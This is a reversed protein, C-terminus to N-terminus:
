QAFPNMGKQCSGVMQRCTNMCHAHFSDFPVLAGPVVFCRGAFGMRYMVSSSCAKDCICESQDGKGMCAREHAYAQIERCLVDNCNQPKGWWGEQLGHIGEHLITQGIRSNLLGTDSLCLTITNEGPTWFGRSTEGCDECTILPCAGGRQKCMQDYIQRVHPNNFAKCLMERNKPDATCSSDVKVNVPLECPLPPTCSTESLGQSDIYKLPSSKTYTYYSDSTIGIPDRRTWRGSDADYVRHRVHYLRRGQAEPVPDYEYGAYGRRNATQPASLTGWGFTGSGHLALADLVDDFDSVGDLNVDQRARDTFTGGGLGGVDTLDFDGDSDIDGSPIMFPVGYASYKVWQILSGTDTLLASVDARWNQVYYIREERLGDTADEWWNTSADRDRLIVADIYSSGGFGSLGANHHVFVEKPTADTGRFTAVQRWSDDYCFYFWPDAGDVELDTNADYHWGIRYGLGNYRHEAVLADSQDFVKRLRGFADYVYKYTEEDDILNGVADYVPEFDNGGGDLDRGILENVKNHTRVEDLENTGTLVGDGNLDRKFTDWNGTYSLAWREDRTPASLTSGNWHGEQARILRHMGDM